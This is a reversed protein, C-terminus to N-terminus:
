RRLASSERPSTVSRLDVITDVPSVPQSWVQRLRAAYVPDAAELGEILSALLAAHFREGVDGSYRGGISELTEDSLKGLNLWYTVLTKLDGLTTECEWFFSPAATRAAVARLASVVGRMGVLAEFPLAFPLRPDDEIADFLALTDTTWVLAEACPLPGLRLRIQVVEMM